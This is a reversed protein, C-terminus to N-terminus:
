KDGMARVLYDLSEARKGQVRNNVTEFDVLENAKDELESFDTLIRNELGYETLLYRLKNSNDRVMVAMPTNCIISMVSGHFTDTIVFDANKIWKLIDIPEVNICKDAWSHYFGVSIVKKKERRAFEKIKAIEGPDSMSHDYSYVLIYNKMDPRSEAQEKAFGYLLVPDCVMPAEDGTIKQVINRSNQDRVSIFDMKGFGESVMDILKHNRIYDYTTPGFSGAYSIVSTAHLGNGFMFPNVGIDLSFVEDSGIIVMDGDFENYPTVAKIYSDRYAGFLKNKKLNFLISGVGKQRMYNLYFPISKASIKYKNVKDKSVFSYDRTYSLFEVTHGM